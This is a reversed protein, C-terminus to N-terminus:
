VFFNPPKEFHFFCTCIYVSLVFRSFVIERFERIVVSFVLNGEINEICVENVFCNRCSYSACSLYRLIREGHKAVFVTFQIELETSEVFVFYMKVVEVLHVSILLLLIRLKSTRWSSILGFLIIAM